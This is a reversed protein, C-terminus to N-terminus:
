SGITSSEKECLAINKLTAVSNISLSWGGGAVISRGISLSFLTNQFTCGHRAEMGNWILSGNFTPGPGNTEALALVLYTM